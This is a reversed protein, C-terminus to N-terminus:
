CRTGPLSHTNTQFQDPAHVDSHDHSQAIIKHSPFLRAWTGQGSALTWLGHGLKFLLSPLPFFLHCARGYKTFSIM